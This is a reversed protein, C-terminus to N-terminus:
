PTTETVSDCPDTSTFLRAAWPSESCRESLPVDRQERGGTAHPTNSPTGANNITWAGAAIPAPPPSPWDEPSSPLCDARPLSNFSERNHKFIEGGQRGMVASSTIGNLNQGNM